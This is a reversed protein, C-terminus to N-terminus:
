SWKWIKTATFGGGTPRIRLTKDLNMAQRLAEAAANPTAPPPPAVPDALPDTGRSWDRTTEGLLLDKAM